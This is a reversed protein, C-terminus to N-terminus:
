RLGCARKCADITARAVARAQKASRELVAEVQEPHALYHERRARAPEFHADIKAALLQKAHGWGFDQGDRKGAQYWGRIQELEAEDCFLELLAYVNEKSTEGHEDTRSISLPSGLPTSDTVVQGVAKKLPKGSLFLPLTNGYSKSMKRGDIGPVYPTKSLRWEPRRLVPTDQAFAENFHTAMDQTMEIHQVQDKGVPVLSSQYILIDAAMLVPYFFLGAVPKIGQNVKDKYSHARELLGMGTVTSLLWTLETVEPIDSQRFLLAKDPDLGCALYTLAVDFVNQRLAAPDRLTTLAHYDAIFYYSQGPFEDQLAIHQQMAGFYNGLHLTGSPQIGSLVRPPLVNNAAAM